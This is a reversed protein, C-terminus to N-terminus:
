PRGGRSRSQDVGGATAPAGRSLASMVTGIPISTIAAIEKYSCGELERLVLVERFRPPLTELARALRDRNNSAIALAEPTISDPVHVEENFEAEPQPRRNKEMWSFCTNRVIQLLWARADGGHFGGFFRYARLMADQTVDQADTRNRVLWRALNFASDLHPLVLQNFRETDQPSLAEPADPVEPVKGGENQIPESVRRLRRDPWKIGLPGSFGAFLFTTRASYFPRVRPRSQHLAAPFELLSEHIALGALFDHVVVISVSDVPASKQFAHSPGPGPREAHHLASNKFGETHATQSFEVRFCHGSLQAKYLDAVAM